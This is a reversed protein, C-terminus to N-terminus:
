GPAPDTANTITLNIVESAARQGPEALYTVALQAEWKPIGDRSSAQAKTEYDIKPGCAM